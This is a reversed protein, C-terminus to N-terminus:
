HHSAMVLFLAALVLLVCGLVILTVGLWSSKDVTTAGYLKERLWEAECHAKEEHTSHHHPGGLWCDIWETEKNEMKGRYRLNVLKAILGSDLTDRTSVGRPIGLPPKPVTGRVDGWPPALPPQDTGGGMAGPRPLVVEVNAREAHVKAPREASDEELGSCIMKSQQVIELTKTVYEWPYPVSPEPENLFGCLDRWLPFGLGDMHMVLLQQPRDRFYARVEANHKRYTALMTQANFDTRGYLAKHLRNSIPWIDWEWRTPNYRADWLREVSKLWKEEDRLTLIFKSGPYAQDLKKYLLPIPMDCAAYFRELTKSRGSANVEEWILHAEGKGWHLSDFGLIQFAKHLSNTATKQMGIGFVRTPLPLLNIPTPDDNRYVTGVGLQGYNVVTDMHRGDIKWAEPHQYQRAHPYDKFRVQASHPITALYRTDIFRMTYGMRQMRANFDIDEGRWTEYAESYGGAKIFDQARVVLRGAFGRLPRGAEPEWSMDRIAAHDPCMFIGPERMREEIFKDFDPGTFNDADLTVIIEANERLACRAAINKAYAVRFPGPERSHYVVLKGSSIERAHNGRLYPVLDDPSNYDLLVFRSRPSTNHALNAPLTERIHFARDKCTIAFVIKM